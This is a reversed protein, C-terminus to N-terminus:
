FALFTCTGDALIANIDHDHLKILWNLGELQYDRMECEESLCAPQKTLRVVRVKSQATKLLAADEEAETTRGRGGKKKKSKKGSEAAVSGLLLLCVFLCPLFNAFLCLASFGRVLWFTLLSM